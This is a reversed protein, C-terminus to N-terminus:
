VRCEKDSLFLSNDEIESARWIVSDDLTNKFFRNLDSIQKM